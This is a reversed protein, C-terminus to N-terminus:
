ACNSHFSTFRLSSRASPSLVEYLYKVDEYDPLCNYAITFVTDGVEVDNETGFASIFPFKSSFKLCTLDLNADLFTVAPQLGKKMLATKDALGKTTTRTRLTGRRAM